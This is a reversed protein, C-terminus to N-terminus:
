MMLPETLYRGVLRENQENAIRHLNSAVSAPPAIEGGTVGFRDLDEILKRKLETAEHPPAIENIRRALELSNANLSSNSTEDGTMEPKFPIDCVECFNAVLRPKVRNFDLVQLDFHESWKDCITSYDYTARSIATISTMDSQGSKVRQSMFSPFHSVPHRLYLVVRVLNWGALEERLRGPDGLLSATYLFESSLLCTEGAQNAIAERTKSIAEVPDSISLRRALDSIFTDAGFLLALSPSSHPLLLRPPKSRGIYNQLTTTGTKPM